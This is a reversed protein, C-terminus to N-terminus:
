GNVCKGIITTYIAGPVHIICTQYRLMENGDVDDDDYVVVLVVVVRHKAITKNM